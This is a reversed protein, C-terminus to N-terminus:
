PRAAAATDFLAFVYLTGGSRYDRMWPAGAGTFGRVAGSMGSAIAIYQRGGLRFSVPAARIGSGTQYSWLKAGSEADHAIFHGEADGTFVLQGATALMGSGMPTRTKQEWAREGTDARIAMVKGYAQGPLYRFGSPGPKLGKAKAEVGYNSFIACNEIVPVYVLRLLPSYAMANWEKGGAAGPCVEVGEYTPVKTEDVIPRGARDFGKNWTVRVFPKAYLFEGTKRDLAYFHGNRDAHVLAKVRRGNHRLDDIFLMENVGDYDWVDGPTFQYHWALKGSNIDLAVVSDTYLNDGRRAGGDYDPFPNGTGWYVLKLEPDYSGNMWTAGGGVKWSDESWTSQHPNGEGATTHFRWLRRGSAADYADIFCRSPFDGGAIGVVIKGDVALPPATASLNDEVKGMEVDWRVRGDRANIAVLHADLTALYLTGNLISVGRNVPGCCYRLKEPLRRRYHWIEKGSRADIAFVHNWSTTLYMVGDVVLPTSQLGDPVGTQFSWVPVLNRVNTRNIEQHPSFRQNGFDRGYQLWNDADAEPALLRSSPVNIEPAVADTTPMIASNSLARLHQVLATRAAADLRDGFGPMATAPIGRAILGDLQADTISRQWAVSALGPGSGGEGTSGHCAACHATFLLQGDQAHLLGCAAAVCLLVFRMGIM